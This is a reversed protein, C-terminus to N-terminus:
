PKQRHISRFIPLVGTRKTHWFIHYNLNRMGCTEPKWKVKAIMNHNEDGGAHSKQGADCFNLTWWKSCDTDVSWGYKWSCCYEICLTGYGAKTRVLLSRSPGFDYALPRGLDVLCDNHWARAIMNTKMWSCWNSIHVVVWLVVLNM